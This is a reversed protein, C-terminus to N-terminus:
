LTGGCRFVFTPGRARLSSEFCFAWVRVAPVFMTQAGKSVGEAQSIVLCLMLNANSRREIRRNQQMFNQSRENTLTVSPERSARPGFIDDNGTDADIPM